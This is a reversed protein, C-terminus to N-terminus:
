RLLVAKGEEFARIVGETTMMAARTGRQITDSVTKQIENAQRRVRDQGESASDKLAARMEAGSKPSWLLAAAIGIALGSMFHLYRGETM